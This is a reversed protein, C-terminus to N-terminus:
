SPRFRDPAVDVPRAHFTLPGFKADLEEGPLSTQGPRDLPIWRDQGIAKSWRRRQGDVAFNLNHM